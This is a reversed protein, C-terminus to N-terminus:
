QTIMVKEMYCCNGFNRSLQNITIYALPHLENTWIKYYKWVVKHLVIINHCICKGLSNLKVKQTNEAPSSVEFCMVFLLALWVVDHLELWFLVLYVVSLKISVKIQKISLVNIQRISLKTFMEDNVNSRHIYCTINRNM